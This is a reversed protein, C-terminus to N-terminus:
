DHLVEIAFDNNHLTKLRTGLDDQAGELGVVLQGLSIDRLMNEHAYLLSLGSPRAASELDSLVHRGADGRYRIRVVTGERGTKIRDALAAPLERPIVTEVFQQTLPNAPHTFVDAVQGQEVVRGHAMVAVHECARAIVSMQHTILLVTIEYRQHIDNLLDLIQRTTIPDLASTAEDSLLIKPNTVLARAIGIRQCQGGSLQSPYSNARDGLGVLELTQAVRSSIDTKPVGALVLPIAVNQEVTKSQLLNYHQFIMGVDHRLGALERKSLAAPNRGLVDVSGSSPTVLGNVTRVLTSKGAGSSGIIGYFSGQPVELSVDDLAQLTAAGRGYVKSVHDFTVATSM